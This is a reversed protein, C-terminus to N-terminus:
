RQQGRQEQDHRETTTLVDEVLWDLGLFFRQRCGLKSQDSWRLPGCPLEHGDEAGAEDVRALAHRPQAEKALERRLPASRRDDIHLGRDTVAAAAQDLEGELRSM